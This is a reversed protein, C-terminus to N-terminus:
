FVGLGCVREKSSSFPIEVVMPIIVAEVESSWFNIQLDSHSNHWTSAFFFCMGPWISPPMGVYTHMRIKVQFLIAFISNCFLKTTSSSCTHSLFRHKELLFFGMYRLWPSCENQFLKTSTLHVNVFFSVSSFYRCWSRSGWIPCGIFEDRQVQFYALILVM